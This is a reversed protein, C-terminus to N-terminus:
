EGDKDERFLSSSEDFVYIDGVAGIKSPITKNRSIVKGGLKAWENMNHLHSKGVRQCLGTYSYDFVETNGYEKKFDERLKIIEPSFSMFRDQNQGMKGDARTTTM